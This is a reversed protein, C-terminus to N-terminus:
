WIILRRKNLVCKTIDKARLLKSICNSSNCIYIGRTNEKQTKDLYAIGDKAIIKLLEQKNKRTRCAICTRINKM